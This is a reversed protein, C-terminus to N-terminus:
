EAPMFDDLDVFNWLEEPPWISMIGRILQAFQWDVSEFIQYQKDSYHCVEGFDTQWDKYARIAQAIHEMMEVASSTVDMLRCKNLKRFVRSASTRLAGASLSTENTYHM